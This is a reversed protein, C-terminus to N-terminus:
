AGTDQMCGSAPRTQESPTMAIFGENAGSRGTRFHRLTPLWCRQACCRSHRVNCAMGRAMVVQGTADRNARSSDPASGTALRWTATSLPVVVTRLPACSKPLLHKLQSASVAVLLLSGFCYVFPPPAVYGRQSVYAYRVIVGSRPLKVQQTGNSTVLRAMWAEANLPGTDPVFFDIDNPLSASTKGFAKRCSM